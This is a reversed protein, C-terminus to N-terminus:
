NDNFVGHLIKLLSDAITGGVTMVSIHEALQILRVTAHFAFPKGAQRATVSRDLMDRLTIALIPIATHTHNKTTRRLSWAV